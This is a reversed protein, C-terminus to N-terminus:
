KQTGREPVEMGDNDKIRKFIISNNSMIRYWLLISIIATYLWPDNEGVKMQWWYHILILISILYILSHLQKWRKLGITKVMYNTSTLALPILLLLALLGLVIYPKEYIDQLVWHWELATDLVLYIGAHVCAYFFCYLGIMRRLRIIWNWDELRKGYRAHVWISLHTITRRLPTIVLSIILFIFSTLGTTHLLTQLANVGLSNYYYGYILYLVPSLSVLFVSWWTLTYNDKLILAVPKM